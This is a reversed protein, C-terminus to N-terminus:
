EGIDEAWLDPKERQLREMLAICRPDDAVTLSIGQARMWEEAGLFTRNEGIVVRPIKFLIATGSCMPCPSLTSVLTLERWDRRRGAKRICDVEAHATPDGSQVRQNHGRAVIEGNAAVLVSGIPIGGERWSKEAQDIAADLWARMAHPDIGTM